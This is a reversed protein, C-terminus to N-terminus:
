DFIVNDEMRIKDLQAKFNMILQWKSILISNSNISM